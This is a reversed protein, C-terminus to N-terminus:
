CIQAAQWGSPKFVLFGSDTQFPSLVGESLQLSTFSFHGWTGFFLSGLSDAKPVLLRDSLQLVVRPECTLERFLASTMPVSPTMPAIQPMWATSSTTDIAKSCRMLAHWIPSLQKTPLALDVFTSSCLIELANSSFGLASVSSSDVRGREFGEFLESRRMLERQLSQYFFSLVETTGETRSPGEFPWTGQVSAAWALNALARLPVLKEQPSPIRDM